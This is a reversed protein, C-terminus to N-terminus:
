FLCGLEGGRSSIADFERYTHNNHILRERISQACVYGYIEYIIANRTCIIVRVYDKKETETKRYLNDYVNLLGYCSYHAKIESTRANQETRKKRGPQKYLM